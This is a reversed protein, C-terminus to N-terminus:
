STIQSQEIKPNSLTVQFEEEEAVFGLDTIQYKNSNMAKWSNNTYAQQKGEWIITRTEKQEGYKSLYSDMNMNVFDSAM